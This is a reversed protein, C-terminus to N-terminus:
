RSAAWSSSHTLKRLLSRTEEKDDEGKLRLGTRRPFDTAACGLSNELVSSVKLFIFFFFVGCSFIFSMEAFFIYVHGSHEVDNTM